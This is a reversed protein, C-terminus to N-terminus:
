DFYYHTRDYIWDGLMMTLIWIFVDYIHTNIFDIMIDSCGISNMQRMDSWGQSTMKDDDYRHREGIFYFLLFNTFFM